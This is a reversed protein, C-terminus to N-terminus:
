EINYKEALLKMEKRYEDLIGMYELYSNGKRIIFKIAEVQLYKGIIGKGWESSKWLNAVVKGTLVDYLTEDNSYNAGSVTALAQNAETAFAVLM